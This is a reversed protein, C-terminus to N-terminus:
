FHAYCLVSCEYNVILKQTTTQSNSTVWFFAQQLLINGFSRYITVLYVFLYVWGTTLHLTRFDMKIMIYKIHVAQNGTAIALTSACICKELRDWGPPKKGQAKWVRPVLKQCPFTIIQMTRDWQSANTRKTKQIQGNGRRTWSWGRKGNDDKLKRKKIQERREEECLTTRGWQGSHCSCSQSWLRLLCWTHLRSRTPVNGLLLDTRVTHRLNM